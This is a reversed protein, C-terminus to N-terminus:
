STSVSPMRQLLQGLKKKADENWNQKIILALLGLGDALTIGNFWEREKNLVLGMVSIIEEFAIGFIRGLDQTTVKELNVGSATLKGIVSAVAEGFVALKGFPVPSVTVEEGYELKYIEEPFIRKLETNAM